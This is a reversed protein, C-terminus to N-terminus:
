GRDVRQGTVAARGPRACLVFGLGAATRKKDRGLAALVEDVRDVETSRATPLGHRTSSRRSRTACSAPARLARAGRAARARGGRRPPLARLGLRGRDRPRRHPRPQAGRPPRLRARRRRRGRAQDARLRLDITTSSTRTSSARAGAGAGVARRRRDAGTKLVEAFGAALEGPPCRRSRRRTPSCRPPCTTPASTTRPRRCTSGPRAATPPTSRPSSRRRCRSSPSGASTSPPASARRPRRRGRRRARRRSRVRTAGLTALERLVREAEALTKTQEGPPSRSRARSRARDADAYCRRRGRTDTVAFAGGTSRGTASERAPRPRRVVPYEGSASIAGLGDPDRGAARAARAAGAARPRGRRRRGPCSRTPSRSTSRRAARRAPADFTERDRPWRGARGRGAGLGHEADVELWVVVHRDLATASGSPSCAAAASRSRAAAPASSCGRRGAGGRPPPVGGRGRRRLVRRDADRARGRAARRRRGGRARRRRAARLPARSARAWSASSSSRPANDSLAALRDAGPVGAVAALVDDIHDGGFKERYCRALVLAVMAEAVVGAAPVVTSDTRERMAQAPEKTETDVSRLPKTLTSIPKLAGRVILPEGNSM